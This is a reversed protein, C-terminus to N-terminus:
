DHSEKGRAYGHRLLESVLEKLDDLTIGLSRDFGHGEPGRTEATANPISAVDIQSTVDAGDKFLKVQKNNSLAKRIDSNLETLQTKAKNASDSGTKIEERRLVTAPGGDPGPALIVLDIDTMERYLKGGIEKLGPNSKRFEHPHTAKYDAITAENQEIWVQVESMVKAGHTENRADRGTIETMLLSRLDKAATAIKRPNESAGLADLIKKVRPDNMLGHDLVFKRIDAARAASADATAHSAAKTAVERAVAKKVQARARELDGGYEARVKELSRSGQMQQWKAREESTMTAAVETTWDRATGAQNGNAAAADVTPHEGSPVSSRTPEATGHEPSNGSRIAASDASKAYEAPKAADDSAIQHELYHREEGTLQVRQGGHEFTDTSLAQEIRERGQKVLDRVPERVTFRAGARTIAITRKIGGGLSVLLFGGNVVAGGIVEAIRRDREAHIAARSEDSTANALQVATNAEIVALQDKVDSAIVFGQAIDLGTMCLLFRGKGVLSAAGFTRTLTGFPLSIAVVQLLDMALRRDLTLRGDKALRDEVELAVSAVGAGSTVVMLGAAVVSGGPVILMAAGGILGATGLIKKATKRRNDTDVTREWVAGDALRQAALHVTGKPYDNHAHFHEAMETLAEAELRRYVAAPSDHDLRWAARGPHQVAEGFTTDHLVLDYRAVGGSESRQLVHMMLRLPTTSSDERSVFTGRVVYPTGGKVKAQIELLAGRQKDIQGIAVDHDDGTIKGQAALADVGGRTLDLSGIEDQTTRATQGPLLQLAGQDDRSFAADRGTVQAADFAARDFEKEGVARVGVRSSFRHRESKFHKSTATVAIEYEGPQKGLRLSARRDDALLSSGDSDILTGGRHVTWTYTCHNPLLIQGAEPHVSLDWALETEITSGAVYTPQTPQLRLQGKPVWRHWGHADGGSEGYISGGEIGGGRSTRVDGDRTGVDSGGLNGDTRGGAEGAADGLDAQEHAQFQALLKRLDDLSARRGRDHLLKKLEEAHDSIYVLFEPWASRGRLEIASPFAKRLQEYLARARDIQTSLKDAPRGAGAPAADTRMTAGHPAGDGSQTAHAKGGTGSADGSHLAGGALSATQPALEPHHAAMWDIIRRHIKMDVTLEYRHDAPLTAPGQRELWLTVETFVTRVVADPVGPFVHQMYYRLGTLVPETWGNRDSTNFVFVYSGDAAQEVLYSGRAPVTTGNHAATAGQKPNRQVVRSESTGGAMNDLLPEASQGAAVAHAVDDAQQEYPDNAGRDIGGHLQVGARQQVVHAAEHAATHLDPPGAFAVANGFAYATAGLENAATTAATGQHAHVGSVDHRGFSAQIQELYPLASGAGSVGRSAIEAAVAGDRTVHEGGDVSRRQVSPGEMSAGPAASPMVPPGFLDLISVPARTTNAAPTEDDRGPTLEMRAQDADGGQTSVDLETSHVEAGIEARAPPPGTLANEVLTRRGVASDAGSFARATRQDSAHGAGRPSRGGGEDSM